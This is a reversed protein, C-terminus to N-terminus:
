TNLKKIECLIFLFLDCAKETCVCIGQTEQFGAELLETLILM